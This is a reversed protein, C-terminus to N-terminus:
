PGARTLDLPQRLFAHRLAKTIEQLSVSRPSQSAVAPVETQGPRLGLHRQKVITLPPAYRGATRRGGV